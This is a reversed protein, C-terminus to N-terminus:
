DAPDAKFMRMLVNSRLVFHQFLAGSVHLTIAGLLFLQLLEHTYGAFRWDFFWALAGTVPMLFLLLYISAHVTEAVYHLLRPENPPPPPVGRTLRLYIRASALVFITIGAFIHLYTLVATQTTGSRGQWSDEIGDHAFYQFAILVVVAWHLIIQSASYGTPSMTGSNKADGSRRPVSRENVVQM